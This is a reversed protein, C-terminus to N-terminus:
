LTDPETDVPAGPSDLRPSSEEAMFAKIRKLADLAWEGDPGDAHEDIIRALLPAAKEPQGMHKEYLEVLEKRTLLLVGGNMTSESLAKKFWEAAGEADDLQDRKLRAIRLYPTPDSPGEAIASMFTSIALEYEGRVAYSEALSYEKKHPTSSGSPSYLTSGARGVWHMLFLPGFYASAWGLLTTLAILWVSSESTVNQFVGLLFGLFAGVLSWGFIRFKAVQEFADVDRPGSSPVYARHIPSPPDSRRVSASSERAESPRSGPEPETKLPGGHPKRAEM